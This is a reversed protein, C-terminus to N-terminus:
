KPVPVRRKHGCQPCAIAQGASKGKHALYERM